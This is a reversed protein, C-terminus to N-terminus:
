QTSFYTCGISIRTYPFFCIREYGSLYNSFPNFKSVKQILLVKVIDANHMDCIVWFLYFYFIVYNLINQYTLSGQVPKQSLPKSIQAFQLPKQIASVSVKRCM